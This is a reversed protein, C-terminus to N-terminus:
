VNKRKMISRIKKNLVLSSNIGMKKLRKDRIATEIIISINRGPKVPIILKPKKIGLIDYYHETMGLREYKKNRRWEELIVVIDVQKKDMVASVGFLSKIDIIGVGRIEIHYKILESGYAILQSGAIKNVYVVDDAIFRHGRTILELACESKGVGSKGLIMVGSGFVEVMVGHYQQIPSFQEELITYLIKVFERTPLGVSLIPINYENSLKIFEKDPKLHYTFFCCPIKFSFFKKLLKDKKSKALSKLYGYEGRGFLQIRNFAFNKFYGALTIGPRNLIFSKVPRKIGKDGSIIEVDLGLEKKLIEFLDNITFINKRNSNM